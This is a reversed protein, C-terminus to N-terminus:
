IFAQMELQGIQQLGQLGNHSTCWMKYISAILVTNLLIKLAVVAILTAKLATVATAGIPLLALATPLSAIILVSLAIKGVLITINWLVHGREVKEVKRLAILDHCSSKLKAIGAISQQALWARKDALLYAIKNNAVMKKLGRKVPETDIIAVKGDKTFFMNNYTLDTYGAQISLQALAEAQDPTLERQPKGQDLAQVQGEVGLLATAKFANETNLDRPTAVEDSLDLKESVVYFQQEQPHWYLYKHPVVLANELNHNHIYVRIKEAKRVRYLHTDETTLLGDTRGLKLIWQGADFIYDSKLPKLPQQFIQDIDQKINVPCSPHGLLYPYFKPNINNPNINM